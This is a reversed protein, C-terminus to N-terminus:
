AAVRRKKPGPRKVPSTQALVWALLADRDFVRRRGIYLASLRGQSIYNRITQQSIKLFAAAGAVDLIRDATDSM